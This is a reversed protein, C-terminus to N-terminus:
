RCYGKDQAFELIKCNGLECARRADLCAFNENDLKLYINARKILARLYDPKLYIAKSYDEIAKKHSSVVFIVQEIGAETLDKVIHHILPKDLVPLMEKPVTKTVPLFRTGYGAAPIVAKRIKSM